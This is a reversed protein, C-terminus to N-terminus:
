RPGPRRISSRTTSARASASISHATAKSSVRGPTTEAPRSASGSPRLSRSSRTASQIIRSCTSNSASTKRSFPSNGVKAPRRDTAVSSTAPRPRHGGRTGTELVMSATRISSIPVTSRIGHGGVTSPGGNTGGLGTGCLPRATQQTSRFSASPASRSSRIDRVFIRDPFGDSNHQSALLGADVDSVIFGDNHRLWPIDSGFVRQEHNYEGQLHHQGQRRWIKGDMVSGFYTTGLGRRRSRVQARIQLGSFDRNLIFNVVGAVADSGYM